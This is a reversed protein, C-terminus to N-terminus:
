TTLTEVLVSWVTFSDGASNAANKIQVDLVQTNATTVNATTSGSLADGTGILTAGVLVMQGAAHMVSNAGSLSRCTLVITLEFDNTGAAGILDGDSTAITTAGLLVKFGTSNGIAGAGTLFSGFARVRISRGATLTGAPLTLSGSGTTFITTYSTTSAVPGTTANQNFVLPTGTPITIPVAGTFTVGNITTGPSLAGATLATTASVAVGAVGIAGNTIGYGALTTPTGTINAWPVTGTFVAQVRTVAYLAVGDSVITMTDWRSVLTPNVVGDVTGVITVANGSADIKMVTLPFDPWLSPALLTVNRAGGTADELIVRDNTLQTTSVASTRIISPGVARQVYQLEQALWDPSYANPVERRVYSVGRTTAM